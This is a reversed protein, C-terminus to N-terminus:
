SGGENRFAKIEDNIEEISLKDLGAKQSEEHAQQLATKAFDITIKEVLDKFEMTLKDELGYKSADKSNIKVSITKM